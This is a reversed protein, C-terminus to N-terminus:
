PTPAPQGPTQDANQRGPPQLQVSYLGTHRGLLRALDGATVADVVADPEYGADILTRMTQADKARIEAQDRVDERLFPIDRDDYWLRAGTPAGILSQLAGAFAGWHPRMTGDVFAKKASTYNGANLASGGLGESLGILSPHVGGAAAIRTEGASQTAKLSLSEWSQGITKIDAGRLFTTSGSNQPGEHSERYAAVFANFQEDTLMPDLSVVYSLNAGKRLTTRKHATILDDADIDPLCSSLWSRGAWQDAPYPRYVAIENPAYITPERNPGIHAYGILQEGVTQGSVQDVAARTLIKVYNPDLRLLYRDDGPDRVWPSMGRTAVDLEAVALLDRTTAGPWPEELISLAPTGFLNGPRGSVLQQWQFRAESFVLLRKAEVAFVVSNAEYAGTGAPGGMQWSTHPVGGYIFQQGPQFMKAWDTVSLGQVTENARVLDAAHDDTRTLLKRLLSAM